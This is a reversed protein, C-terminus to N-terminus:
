GVGFAFWQEYGQSFHMLKYHENINNLNIILEYYKFNTIFSEHLIVYYLCCKFTSPTDQLM